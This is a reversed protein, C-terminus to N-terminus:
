RAIQINKGKIGIFGGKAVAPSERHCLLWKNRMFLLPDKNNEAKTLPTNTGKPLVIISCFPEKSVRCPALHLTGGHLEVTTGRTILFCEANSSDWSNNKVDRLDGLILVMDTVAIIVESSKHYEMGNMKDNLGFCIGIQLDLDGFIERKLYQYSDSSHLAELDGIYSPGTSDMAELSVPFMESFDCNEIISGYRNFKTSNVSMIEIDPNAENIDNLM